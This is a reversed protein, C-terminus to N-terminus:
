RYSSYHRFHARVKALGGHYSRWYPHASAHARFHEQGHGIAFCYHGGVAAGLAQGQVAQRQRHLGGLIRIAQSLGDGTQQGVVLPPAREALGGPRIHGVV